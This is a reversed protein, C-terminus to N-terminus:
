RSAPPASGFGTERLWMAYVAPVGPEVVRLHVRDSELFDLVMFGPHSHAFVTDPGDSVATAKAGSGSVLVYDVVDSELVQLSHEHGAAWIRLRGGSPPRVLASQFLGTMERYPASAYDQTRPSWKRWLAILSGIVPPALHDGLGSFGAHRGHGTLPHHAVVVVDREADVARALEERFAEPESVPCAERPKEWPHLWWQSDVAVVRLGPFPDIAVPGPCGDVPLYSDAQPTRERIYDAQALVAEQGGAEGDAWDHNGPVFLVRAGNGSVAEIQPLLRRDAENRRAPTMGEPYMNDGLFVVLTEAPALGAWEAVDALTAANAEGADGVLVLRARLADTVLSEPLGELARDRVYPRTHSCAAAALLAAGVLGIFRM